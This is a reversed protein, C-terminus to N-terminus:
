KMQEQQYTKLVAKKCGAITAWTQKALFNPDTGPRFTVMGTNSNQCVKGIPKGRFYLSESLLM